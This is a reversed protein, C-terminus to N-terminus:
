RHCLATGVSGLVTTGVRLGSIAWFGFGLGRGGLGAGDGGASGSGAAMLRHIGIRVWVITGLLYPDYSRVEDGANEDFIVAHDAGRWDEVVHNTPRDFPDDCERPPTSPRDLV